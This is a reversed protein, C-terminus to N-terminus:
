LGSNLSTMVRNGTGSHAVAVFLGNGYTVGAWDNDAASTRITWTIGDPSTMVRNGTGSYAVAVFLGNGYTVGAWNNDAASARTFWNSVALALLSRDILCIDRVEAGTLAAINGTAKQGFITSATLALLSMAGAGTFYPVKNAAGTLGALSALNAAYAQVDTGLILGLTARATAADADNVLTKIFASFGITTLMDSATTDDIITKAFDSVALDGVGQIDLNELANGTANWRLFKLASPDPIYLDSYASSVPLLLSRGIMEKLQQIEMVARDFGEEITDAPMEGGTTLDIEQTYAVSRQLVIKTGAAPPTTIWSGILDLTGATYPLTSGTPTITYDTNLVLTTEVGAADRYVITFDSDEYFSINTFPFSIQSGNGNWPQRTNTNPVTM